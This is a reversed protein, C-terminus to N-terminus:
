PRTHGAVVELMRTLATLALLGSGAMVPLMPIWMATELYGASYSGFDYAFTISGWASWGLVVAFALVALNGWITIARKHGAELRDTLLDISIHDGRRLAEAAGLMVAAVLLYGNLEDGWLLPTDFVYRKVIAYSVIALITLILLTSVAGCIRVLWTVIRTLLLSAPAAEKGQNDSEM